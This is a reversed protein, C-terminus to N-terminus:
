LASTFILPRSPMRPSMTKRAVAVNIRCSNVLRSCLPSPSGTYTSYLLAFCATTIWSPSFIRAHCGFDKAEGIDHGSAMVGVLGRAGEFIGDTGTFGRHALLAALTGAIAFAYAM